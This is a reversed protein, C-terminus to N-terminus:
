TRAFEMATGRDKSLWSRRGRVYVTPLASGAGDARRTGLDFNNKRKPTTTADTERADYSNKFLHTWSKSHPTSIPIHSLIEKPINTGAANRHACPTCFGARVPSATRPLTM